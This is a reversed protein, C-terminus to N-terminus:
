LFWVITRRAGAFRMRRAILCNIKQNRARMEDAALLASANFTAVCCRVALCHVRQLGLRLSLPRCLSTKSKTECEKGSPLAAFSPLAVLVCRMVCEGTQLCVCVCMICEYYATYLVLTALLLM